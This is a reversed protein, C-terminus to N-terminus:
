SRLVTMSMDWTFTAGGYSITGNDALATLSAGVLMSMILALCIISMKFNRKM